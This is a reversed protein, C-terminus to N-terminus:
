YNNIEKNSAIFKKSKEGKMKWQVQTKKTFKILPKKVSKKCDKYQFNAKLKESFIQWFQRLRAELAKNAKLM